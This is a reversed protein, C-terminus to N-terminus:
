TIDLAFRRMKTDVKLRLEDDSGSAGPPARGHPRVSQCEDRHRRSTVDSLAFDALLPIEGNWLVNGPKIDRHLVSMSHSHALASALPLAIADAIDDWGPPEPFGALWDSQRRRRPTRAGIRRDAVTRQAESLAVRRRGASSPAANNTGCAPSHGQQAESTPM